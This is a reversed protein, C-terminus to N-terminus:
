AIEFDTEQSASTNAIRDVVTIRMLYHGRPLLSLPIEGAYSLPTTPAASGAEIKRMATTVVPLGDRLIQLQLAVDPPATGNTGRAANYIYLLFWLKSTQAFRRDVSLKSDALKNQNGNAKEATKATEGIMLSSLTFRRTALDPIEIWQMSRGM